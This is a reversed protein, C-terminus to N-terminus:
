VRERCSARGIQDVDITALYDPQEVGTGGYLATTYLEKEPEAKMADAPSAYGPGHHEHSSHDASAM